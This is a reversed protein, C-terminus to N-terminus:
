KAIIILGAIFMLTGTHKHYPSKSKKPDIDLPFIAPDYLLEIKLM